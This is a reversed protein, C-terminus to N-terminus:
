GTSKTRSRWMSMDTLLMWFFLSDPFHMGRLTDISKDIIEAKAITKNAKTGSDRSMHEEKRARESMLVSKKTGIM